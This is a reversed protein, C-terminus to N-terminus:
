TQSPKMYSLHTKEYKPIYKAISSIGYELLIADSSKSNDLAAFGIFALHHHKINLAVEKRSKGSIHYVRRSFNVIDRADCRLEDLKFDYYKILTSYEPYNSSLETTDINKNWILELLSEKTRNPCSALSHLIMYLAGKIKVRNWNKDVVVFGEHSISSIRGNVEHFGCCFRDVFEICSELSNLPYEIPHSIGIDVCYEEGTINSRTGIHVLSTDDHHIVVQTHPSLLEFIYTCSKDLTDFPIDEFNTAMKIIDLFSVSDDLHIHADKAYIMSNTSWEWKLTETNWWLKVISGDLKEQVRVSKWDITDAYSEDYKGFKRFPFCVVDCTEVNIIIGRAEQVMPNSFNSTIGYNFIAFPASEKVSIDPYEELLRERWHVGNDNIFKCIM